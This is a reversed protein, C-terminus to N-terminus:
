AAPYKEKLAALTRLESNKLALDNAAKEADKEEQTKSCEFCYADKKLPIDFEDRIERIHKDCGTCYCEYCSDSGNWNHDCLEDGAELRKKKGLLGNIAEDLDEITYTM